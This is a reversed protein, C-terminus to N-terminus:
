VRRKYGIIGSEIIERQQYKSYGSRKLKTSFEDLIDDREKQPTDESTNLLRRVVEQSLSAKKQQYASASNELITFKSGTPKSYFLYKIQQYNCQVFKKEVTISEWPPPLLPPPPPPFTLPGLRANPNGPNGLVMGPGWVWKGLSSTADEQKSSSSRRATEVLSSSSDEQRSNSPDSSDSSGRETTDVLSSTPNSDRKATEVEVEMQKNITEMHLKTDLTPLM